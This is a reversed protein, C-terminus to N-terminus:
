LGRAAVVSGTHGLVAARMGEGGQGAVLSAMVILFGCVVALFYSRSALAVPLSLM